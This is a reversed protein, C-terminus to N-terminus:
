FTYKFTAGLFLAYNTSFEGKSRVGQATQDVKGDGFWIWSGGLSYAFPSGEAPQKAYAMGVKFQEDMPLIFTRNKDDVPSSDYGMGSSFFSDDDLKYIFAAGVHYTDKWKFDAHQITSGLLNSSIEIREKGLQSWDEWDFDMVLTLQETAQYRMGVSILQAYTLDMEINDLSSLITNVPPPGQVGKVSLDGDLEVESKTRYILGFLAKQTPQWTVGFFGQPSWGDIQNISLKGDPLAGNQQRIAVDSDLMTYIASIGAGISWQDNIKYGVSTSIGLGTLVSRTAQYRGVFDDGYDVGGGLPATISFGATFDNPLKKVVFLSPIAALSGANGGDSGGAEAIDSDFRIQPIVLQFGSLLVDEKIGTMGAPNTFVADASKNNTVNVSGATGLSAPTGLESLYIGGAFASTTALLLTTAITLSLRLHSM